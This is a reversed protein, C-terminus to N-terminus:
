SEMSDFEPLTEIWYSSLNLYLSHGWKIHNWGWIRLTWWSGWQEGGRRCWLWQWWQRAWWSWARWCACPISSSLHFFFFSFISELVCLPPLPSILMALSEVRSRDEVALTWLSQQSRHSRGINILKRNKLSLYNTLFYEFVTNKFPSFQGVMQMQQSTNDYWSDRQTTNKGSGLGIM